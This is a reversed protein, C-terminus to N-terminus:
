VVSKRDIIDDIKENLNLTKIINQKAKVVELNHSGALEVDFNPDLSLSGFSMGTATETISSAIFGPINTKLDSLFTTIFDSM